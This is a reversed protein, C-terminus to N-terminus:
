QQLFMTKYRMKTLIRDKTKNLHLTKAIDGRSRKENRLYTKLHKLFNQDGPVGDRKRNSDIDRLRQLNVCNWNWASLNTDIPPIRYVHMISRLTAALRRATDQAKALQWVADQAKAPDRFDCLSKYANIVDKSQATGRMYTDMWATVLRFGRLANEIQARYYLDQKGPAEWHAFDELLPAAYEMVEFATPEKPEQESMKSSQKKM